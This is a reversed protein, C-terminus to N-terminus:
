LGNNLLLEKLAAKYVVHDCKVFLFMQKDDMFENIKQLHRQEIIQIMLKFDPCCERFFKCDDQFQVKVKEHTSTFIRKIDEKSIPKMGNVDAIEIMVFKGFDACADKRKSGLYNEIQIFDNM